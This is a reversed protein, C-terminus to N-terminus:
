KMMLPNVGSAVCGGDCLIDTGTLYGAKESACFALLNAIEDVHGYRKIACYEIFGDTDDKELEAMPTKFSGPTISLVRIGKQGFKAADTKAYWIVFHKSISYAVGTRQKKPFLNVRAMMKKMFIEKDIRSYKYGRVPMILEPTLYASMSSVDIICSGEEMVNYFSENMNITGLANAEMIKRPEGMHPSMGAAHIVSSVTGIKKAHAALKEVSTCDSIDCAFSEAEIGESKLEQLASELKKITRGVIIVYNDKGLIKATALGMGSGGGTIVCVKKM